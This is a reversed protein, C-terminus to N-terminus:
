RQLATVPEIRAARTAPYVGALLGVAAGIAPAALPFWPEVIPTWQRIAAVAVITILGLSAGITGGLSGLMASEAMFQAAIHRRRAGLARRLGIEPVRELVAVLTTNTIGAAGVALSLVALLLLLASFDGAVADRLTRPDPPTIIRFRDPADPRLAVALQSGVTQAAGARTDVVMSARSSPDPPGWIEQATRQPIMISLTLDANREVSDVIGIVAFPIGDILVAPTVALTHVGLRAATPQGIIAVREKRQDHIADFLRGQSIVPRLAPLLGPSTAIVAIDDIASGSTGAPNIRIPPDNRVPWSVGAHQVGPIAKIRQEADAPFSMPELDPTAPGVDHVTVETSILENFRSGVQGQATATVGLVAVFAAVGIITGATTLIARMPRQFAGAAAENLLDRFALRPPITDNNM